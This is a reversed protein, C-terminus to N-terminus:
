PPIEDWAGRKRVANILRNATIQTFAKIYQDKYSKGPGDIEAYAINIQTRTNIQCKEEM